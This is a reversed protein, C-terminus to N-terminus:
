DFWEAIDCVRYGVRGESLRTKTPVDGLSKLRDWTRQSVGVAEVTERENLVRILDSATQRRPESSFKDSNVAM